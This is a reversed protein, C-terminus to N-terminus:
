EKNEGDAGAGDLRFLARLLREATEREGPAAAEAAIRRLAQSPDHLLRNVLLETARAADGGAAQLARERAAEFHRRLATIAPVATREAQDHLFAALEADVIRWAEAAAAERTARGSMAVRELDDLDYRFAGDLREADREIDAPIGLDLLLMARGRRHRLAAAVMAATVVYRGTGAATVVIDAQALDATAPPFEAVHGDHRRAMDAAWAASAGAVAVRKLGAARLHELMLEGMEGGGVLLGACRDLVGHVNRALETAAAALSVPREGVATETRVRKAVGYAAQLVIELEPGIMGATQARRHAEKVQGLVQPEGVVQSDLSGAVAFVHRLAESGRLAYIQRGAEGALAGARGALLGGLAMGAADSDHHVAQVEVRDCTSLVIAQVIGARRLTALVGTMEAEAIFLADRLAATSSRHNAGIVLLRDLLSVTM